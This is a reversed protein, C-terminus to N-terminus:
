RINYYIKLHNNNIEIHDILCNIIMRQEEKEIRSWVTKLTSSQKVSYTTHNTKQSFTTIREELKDEEDKLEQLQNKAEEIAIGEAILKLLNNIKTTIKAKRNTLETLIDITPLTNNSNILTQDLNMRFINELVINEFNLAEFRTNQCNPDKIYRKKSHQRSNCYVIIRKGWKQYRYKAGCHGCIIKGSLLYHPHYKEHSRIQHVKLIEQYLKPSVVAEHLGPFIQNKYPIMGTNTISLIRKEILRDDMGIIESIQNFSTGKLYLSIMKNLIAVQEPIPVLIGKELDYRYPFPVKGGGRWLGAQARKKLGIKTREIITERELQAFVSLVGIM